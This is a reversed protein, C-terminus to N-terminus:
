QLIENKNADKQLRVRTAIIFPTQNILNNGHVDAGAAKATWAMSIALLSDTEFGLAIGKEDTRPDAYIGTKEKNRIAHINLVRSPKYLQILSLLFQNEPEIQRGHYDIGHKPNFAQGPPPMQRNPDVTKANTYRGKNKVSGLEDADAMAAAANDPFLSPIIMVSFYPRAGQQLYSILNEALRISSLESGHMGGIILARHNSTGPFYWVDVPNGKQSYGLRGKTIGMSAEPDNVVQHFYTSLGSPASIATDAAYPVPHMLVPDTDTILFPLLWTFLSPLWM